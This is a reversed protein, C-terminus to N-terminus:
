GWLDNLHQVKLATHYDGGGEHQNFRYVRMVKPADIHNYAAFVSSPPCTTDMLGVSMLTRAKIRTAFNVGDFYDLTDFVQIEKDRHISLYRVIEQYPYENTLGVARRFQCLFPVDPLCVSIDDPLLGSVALTLGGGQSRGSAALRTNDVDERSQAAEVARVADVYVRRYYYTKPDLIGQTMFGPHHPNAGDPIDPTDGNSWASGQGRTDMIFHAYGANAWVLWNHPLSRGGGYGIYQVVCPLPADVGAPRIYWGKIRQGGYGSFTVDYVDVLKLGANYPEFVANLDHQRAEQLTAQWFVDFDAPESRPPLYEYLDELSLDFFSM